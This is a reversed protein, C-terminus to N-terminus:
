ALAISSPPGTTIPRTQFLHFRGDLWGWEIDQEAGYHERVQVLFGLPDRRVSRFARAMDTPTPGPVGIETPRMAQLREAVSVPSM